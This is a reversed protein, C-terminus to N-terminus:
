QEGGGTQHAARNDDVERQQLALGRNGSVTLARAFDQVSVTQGTIVAFTSGACTAGITVLAATLAGPGNTLAVIVAGVLTAASLGGGLWM